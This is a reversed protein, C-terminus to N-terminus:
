TASAIRENCMAVPSVAMDGFVDDLDGRECQNSRQRDLPSYASPM